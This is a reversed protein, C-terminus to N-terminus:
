QHQESKFFPHVTEDLRGAGFNFGIQEAAAKGFAEQDAVPYERQLISVDSHRGSDQIAGVLEVLEDRLVSFVRTLNETTEGM